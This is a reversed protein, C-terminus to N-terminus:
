CRRRPRWPCWSLPGCDRPTVSAPDSAGVVASLLVSLALRLLISFGNVDQAWPGLLSAIFDTASLTTM